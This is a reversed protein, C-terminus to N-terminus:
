KVGWLVPRLLLQRWTWGSDLIAVQVADRFPVYPRSPDPSKTEVRRWYNWHPIATAIGGPAVHWRLKGHTELVSAVGDGLYIDLQYAESLQQRALESARHPDDLKLRGVLHYAGQVEMMFPSAPDNLELLKTRLSERGLKRAGPAPKVRAGALLLWYAGGLLALVLTDLTLATATANVRLIRMLLPVDGHGYKPEGRADILHSGSVLRSLGHDDRAFFQLIYPGFVWELMNGNAARGYGLWQGSGVSTSASVVGKPWTDRAWRQEWAAVAANHDAFEEVLAWEGGPYVAMTGTPTQAYESAGMPLLWQPPAGPQMAKWTDFDLGSHAAARVLLWPLGLAGVLLLALLALLGLERPSPRTASPYPRLTAPPQPTPSDMGGSSLMPPRAKLRRFDAPLTAQPVL